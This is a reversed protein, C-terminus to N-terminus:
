QQSFKNTKESVLKTLAYLRSSDEPSTLDLVRFGSAPIDFNASVVRGGGGYTVIFEVHFENLDTHSKSLLVLAGVIYSAHYNHQKATRNISEDVGYSFNGISGEIKLYEEADRIIAGLQKSSYQQAKSTQLACSLIALAIVIISRSM